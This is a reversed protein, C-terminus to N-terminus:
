TTYSKTHAGTKEQDTTLFLHSRTDSATKDQYGTIQLCLAGSNIALQVAHASYNKSGRHSIVIIGCEPGVQPPYNVFEFSHIAHAEVRRESLLRFMYEAVIAAHLSTGIGVLYIRKKEALLQAVSRARELNAKLAHEIQAPQEHIADHM